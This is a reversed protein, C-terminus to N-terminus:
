AMYAVWGVRAAGAAGTRAAFYIIHAASPVPRTTWPRIRTITRTTGIRVGSWVNGHMDYLGWPNARKGGVAHTERWQTGVFWGYDLLEQEESEKTIGNRGLSFSFRGTNGARCAYEWQAESPLRYTRGAAEEEPLESLKRCFEAADDWSVSEVPFRRTDQGVVQRKGQGHHSFESPNTGMVRQYEEQTVEYM